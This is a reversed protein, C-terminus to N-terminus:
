LSYNKRYSAFLKLLSFKLTARQGIEKNTKLKITALYIKNLDFCKIEICKLRTEYGDTNIYRCKSCIIYFTKTINYYFQIENIFFFIDQIFHKQRLLIYRAVM